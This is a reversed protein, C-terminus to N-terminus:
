IIFEEKELNELMKLGHKFHKMYLARMNKGKETFYENYWLLMYHIAEKLKVKEKKTIKRYKEYEEILTRVHKRNLKGNKNFCFRVIASSIDYILPGYFSNFDILGKIKNNELILNFEHFDNHIAGRP